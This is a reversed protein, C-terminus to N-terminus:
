RIASGGGGGGKGGGGSSGAEWIDDLAANWIAKAKVNTQMRVSLFTAKTLRSLEVVNGERANGCVYM